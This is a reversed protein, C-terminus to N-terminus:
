YRLPPEFVLYVVMLAAILITVYFMLALRVDLSPSSSSKWYRSNTAAVFARSARNRSPNRKTFQLFVAIAISLSLTYLASWREDTMHSGGQRRRMENIKTPSVMTVPKVNKGRMAAVIIKEKEMKRFESM